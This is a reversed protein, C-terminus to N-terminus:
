PIRPKFFDDSGFKILHLYIFFCGLSSKPIPDSNHAIYLANNFAQRGTKRFLLLTGGPALLEAVVEAWRRVDPLWCLAGTGTYVVDFAFLM